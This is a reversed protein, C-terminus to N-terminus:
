PGDFVTGSITTNEPTTEIKSSTENPQALMANYLADPISLTLRYTNGSKIDSHLSTPFDVDLALLKSHSISLQKTGNTMYVWYEGEKHEVDGIINGSFKLGDLVCQVKVLGCKNGNLNKRAQTSGTLDMPMNELRVISFTQCFATDVVLLLLCLLCWKLVVRKNNHDTHTAIHQIM